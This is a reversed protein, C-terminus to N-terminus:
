PLFQGSNMYEEWDQGPPCETSHYRLVNDVVDYRVMDFVPQMMGDADPDVRSSMKPFLIQKSNPRIAVEKGDLPGGVCKMITM